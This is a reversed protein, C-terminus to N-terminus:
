SLTCKGEPMDDDPRQGLSVMHHSLSLVEIANIGHYALLSEAKCMEKSSDDKNRLM